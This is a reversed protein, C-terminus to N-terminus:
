DGARRRLRRRSTGGPPPRQASSCRRPWLGSSAVTWRLEAAHRSRPRDPTSVDWAQIESKMFCSVYLYRDDPSQRLDAPLCGKGLDAVKKTAFKGDKGQAFFWISDGLASNTWGHAKGPRVSWRVELPVPDTTLTKIVRVLEGDNTFEAMGGPPNGDASSLFTLLMRGPLAYYTHPGHLGTVASIDEITKVITPRSPDAAVDVIFLKKSLLTGVWIKT